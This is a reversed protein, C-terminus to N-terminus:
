LLFRRRSRNQCNGRQSGPSPLRQGKLLQFPDEISDGRAARGKMAERRARPTGNPSVKWTPRHGTAEADRYNKADDATMGEFYNWRANFERIHAQCFYQFERPNDKSVPARFTAKQDCDKWACAHVQDEFKKKKKGPPKVRIDFGLKPKYAEEKSM